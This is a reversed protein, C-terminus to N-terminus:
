GELGAASEIQRKLRERARYLHTKVTGLPLNLVQAMEGYSMGQLYFLTIVLRYQAPLAAVQRHVLAQQEALAVIAAPDATTPSTGAPLDDIDIALLQRRLGPLRNCCLNSVIRYLWTTFRSELRFGGLGKWARLFAEQALDEAEVADGLVRYALNYVYRQHRAVLAAFAQQDGTQARRM